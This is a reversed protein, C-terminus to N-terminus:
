PTDLADAVQFKCKNGLGAAESLAQAREIQVPSLSIGTMSTGFRRSIHRSSGGVGCGAIDVGTKPAAGGEQVGAWELSRGIMFRQAARHDEMTKPKNGQVYYGHHMHEGWMDEWVGSSKDYFNAIGEKLQKDSRDAGAGGGRARKWTKKAASRLGMMIAGCQTAGGRASAARAHG